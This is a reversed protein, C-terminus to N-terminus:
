RAGELSFVSLSMASRNTAVCYLGDHLRPM